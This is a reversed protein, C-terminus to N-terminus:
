VHTCEILIVRRYSWHLACVHKEIQTYNKLYTSNCACCLKSCEFVTSSVKSTIVSKAHFVTTSIDIGQVYVNTCM